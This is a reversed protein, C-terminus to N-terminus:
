PRSGAPRTGSAVHMAPGDCKGVVEGVIAADMGADLLAALCAQAQEPPIAALLGGSTEPVFYLARFAEDLDPDFGIKPGYFSRNRKAGGPLQGACALEVAGSLYPLSGAHIRLGVSGKEALELAHGPFAFGTV